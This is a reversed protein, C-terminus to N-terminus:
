QMILRRLIRIKDTNPAQSNIKKAKPMIRYMQITRYESMDVQQNLYEEREDSDSQEKTRTQKLNDTGRKAINIAVMSVRFTCLNAEIRQATHSIIIKEDGDVGAFHRSCIQRGSAYRKDLM